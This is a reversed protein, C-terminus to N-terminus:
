AFDPSHVFFKALMCPLAHVNKFDLRFQTGDVIYKCGGM